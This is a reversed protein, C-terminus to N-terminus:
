NSTTTTEAAPAATETPAAEQGAASPAETAAAQTQSVADNSAAPAAEQGTLGAVLEESPKTEEEPKAEEDANTSTPQDAIGAVSNLTQEIESMDNAGAQQGNLAVAAKMAAQREAEAQVAAAAAAEVVSARMGLLVEYRFPKIFRFYENVSILEVCHMSWDELNVTTALQRRTQDMSLQINHDNVLEGLNVNTLGIQDIEDPNYGNSRVNRLLTNLDEPSMKIAIMAGVHVRNVENRQDGSFFVIDTTAEGAKMLTEVDLDQHIEELLERNAAKFCTARLDEISMRYQVGGDQTTTESYVLEDISDIHGGFGLSSKSQLRAEDNVAPRTYQLYRIRGADYDVAYFVVYPIIQLYKNEPNECIERDVMSTEMFPAQQTLLAQLASFERFCLAQKM